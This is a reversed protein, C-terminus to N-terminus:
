LRSDYRKKASDLKGQSYGDPPTNQLWYLHLDHFILLLILIPRLPGPLGSRQGTPADHGRHLPCTTLGKSAGIQWGILAANGPPDADPVM